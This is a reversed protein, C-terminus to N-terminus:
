AQQLNHWCVCFLASLDSVKQEIDNRHLVINGYLSLCIFDSSQSENVQEGESVKTVNKVFAGKSHSLLSQFSLSQHMCLEPFFLLPYVESPILWVCM